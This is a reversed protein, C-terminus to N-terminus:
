KDNGTFYVDRRCKTAIQRLAASIARDSNGTELIERVAAEEDASVSWGAKSLFDAAARDGNVKAMIMWLRSQERDYKVGIAKAYCGGLLYQARAHNLVAARRFCNFAEHDSKAVGIGKMHILGLNVLASPHSKASAKSFM